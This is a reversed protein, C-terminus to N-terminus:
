VPEAPAAPPPVAPAVPRPVVLGLDEAEKRNKEDGLFEVLKVPDNEFRERLDAPYSMFLRDAEQIKILSEQLDGIESVDGYFPEGKFTPPLQGSKEFRAIVKNIDAEDRDAQVTFGKDGKFDTVPWPRQENGESDKPYRGYMSM